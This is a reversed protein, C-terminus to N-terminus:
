LVLGRLYERFEEGIQDHRLGVEVTAKLIGLKDGMDYRTGTFDVGIMGKNRALVKMADTLVIEGNAGPKTEKLLTFVEPPLVCRGLIAFNSFAEGKKPKEIMDSVAYINDRLNSVKLSSYKAVWEQPVEKMTVSGLGYEEYARCLQATAPDDGIIIDDGYIVAFPENGVFREACMVAHGTGKAERQRVYTIHALESVRVVQEYLENKGGNLLAHELEPARDFHDQIATKGRSIVIMVDSIGSNAAEEIIYQIAPKDAINLMEKPIAKTAPLVRTGLGAALVVAKKVKQM